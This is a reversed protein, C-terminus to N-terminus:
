IIILTDLINCPCLNACNIESARLFLQSEGTNMVAMNKKYRLFLQFRM